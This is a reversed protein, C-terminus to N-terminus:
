ADDNSSQSRVVTAEVIDDDMVYVEEEAMVVMAEVIGEEMEGVGENNFRDGNGGCIENYERRLFAIEALIQEATMRPVRPQVSCPGADEDGVTGGMTVDDGGDASNVVTHRVQLKNKYISINGSNVANWIRSEIRRKKESCSNSYDDDVLCSQVLFMHKCCQDFVSPGLRDFAHLLM